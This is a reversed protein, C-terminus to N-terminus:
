ASATFVISLEQDNNAGNRNCSFTVNDTTVGEREGESVTQLEAAPASFALTSTSPGDLSISLAGQTAAVLDGYKDDTAILEAEPNMNIVPIRDTIICYKYGAATDPCQRMYLTNGSEISVEQVCQAVSQWTTTSSAYRILEDTPYTPSLLATDTPSSWVGMFDWDIYGVEGAELVIRFNGSCGSLLKRRGDMYHALTLTKVNSGPAESRPTFTTSSKVWGCAPFLVEAWDPLTSSGDWQIDTRFRLRGSYPGVASQRRNFAGPSERPRIEVTDESEINYANYAGNTGSLSEATGPTSEIAAAILEKEKLLPM